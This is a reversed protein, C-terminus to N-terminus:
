LPFVTRLHKTIVKAVDALEEVTGITQEDDDDWTFWWEGEECICGIDARQVSPEHMVVFLVMRGDRTLIEASVGYTELLARRLGDLFVPRQESPLYKRTAAGGRPTSTSM